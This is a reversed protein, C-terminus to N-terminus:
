HSVWLIVLSGTPKKEPILCHKLVAHWRLLFFSLFSKIMQVFISLADPANLMGRHYFDQASYIYTSCAEAYCPSAFGSYDEHPAEAYCSLLLVSGSGDSHPFHELTEEWM